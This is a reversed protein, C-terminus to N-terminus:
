GSGVDAHRFLVSGVQVPYGRQVPHVPHQFRDQAPIDAHIYLSLQLHVPHVTLIGFFGEIPLFFYRCCKKEAPSFDEIYITCGTCPIFFMVLEHSFFRCLIFFGDQAPEKM